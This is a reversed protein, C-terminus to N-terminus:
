QALEKLQRLVELDVIEESFTKNRRAKLAKRVELRVFTELESEGQEFKASLSARLGDRADQEKANLKKKSLLQSLRSIDRVTADDSSTELNFLDSVLIQDVRIGRPIGFDERLISRDDEREIKLLEVEDDEFATTGIVTMPTHTTVIFQVNPLMDSLRRLIERQWRPHLHHEIEDILVIGGIGRLPQEPNYMMIWGLLDALMALTAHHGDGISGLPEFEGWPGNIALGSFQLEIAGDPLMLVDAIRNLLGQMGGNKKSKRNPLPTATLTRENKNGEIRRIVLEPNQMTTDYNFLSYVADVSAYESYTTTGFAHRGAGYACVFIRDWPFNKPHTTQEVKPEGTPQPVIKTEIWAKKSGNSFELRIQGAEQKGRVNRHFDGYLEALLGAADAEGCLGMAISRLLTTKGVGNDGFIVGWKRTGSPSTLDFTVEEFCRINKITVRTLHFPQETHLTM